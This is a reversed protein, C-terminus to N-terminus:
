TGTKRGANVRKQEPSELEGQLNRGAPPLAKAL